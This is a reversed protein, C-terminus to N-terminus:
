NFVVNGNKIQVEFEMKNIRGTGTAYEINKCDFRARKFQTYQYYNCTQKQIDSMKSNYDMNVNFINKLLNERKQKDIESANNNIMINSIGASLKQMQASTVDIGLSNTLATTCQSEIETISILRKDKERSTGSNVDNSIINNDDVPIVSRDSNLYKFDNLNTVKINVIIREYGTGEEYAQRENYDIVKNMFSILDSGRISSRNYGAFEKNFESLQEVRTTEQQSAYYDSIQNYAIMILSLIMVVILVSAAILLAKTANEM